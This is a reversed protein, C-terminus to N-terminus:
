PFLMLLMIQEHEEPSIMGSFRLVNEDAAPPEFHQVVYAFDDDRVDGRMGIRRNEQWRRRAESLPTDVFIVLSFADYKKAIARLRDRQERTFNASDDVM